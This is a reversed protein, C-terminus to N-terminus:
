LNPSYEHAISYSNPTVLSYQMCYVDCLLFIFCYINVNDYCRVDENERVIWINIGLDLIWYLTFGTLKVRPSIQTHLTLAWSALPVFYLPFFLVIASNVTGKFEHFFRLM